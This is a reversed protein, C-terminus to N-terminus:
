PYRRGFLFASVGLQHGVLVGLKILRLGVGRHATSVEIAQRVALAPAPKERPSALRPMATDTSDAVSGLLMM